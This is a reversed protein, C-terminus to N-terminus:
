AHELQPELGVAHSRRGGGRFEMAEGVPAKRLMRIDKLYNQHVQWPDTPGQKPFQGIARQM